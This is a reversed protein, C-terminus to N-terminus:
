RHKVRALPWVEIFQRAASTHKDGIVLANDGKRWESQTQISTDSLLFGKQVAAENPQHGLCIILESNKVEVSEMCMAVMPVVFWRVINAARKRCTAWGWKAEPVIPNSSQRDEKFVKYTIGVCTLRGEGNM